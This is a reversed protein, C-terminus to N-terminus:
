HLWRSKPLPRWYSKEKQQVKRYELVMFTPDGHKDVIVENLAMPKERWLVVFQAELKELNTKIPPYWKEEMKKPQGRTGLIVDVDEMTAIVMNTSGISSMNVISTKRRKMLGYCINILNGNMIQLLLWKSSIIGIYTWYNWFNDVWKLGHGM